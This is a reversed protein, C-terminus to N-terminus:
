AYKKFLLDLEDHCEKVSINQMTRYTTKIDDPLIDITSSFSTNKDELLSQASCINSILEVFSEESITAVLDSKVMLIEKEGNEKRRIVIQSEELEPLLSYVALTEGEEQYRQVVGVYSIRKDNLCDRKAEKLAKKVKVDLVNMLKISM